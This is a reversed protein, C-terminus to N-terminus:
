DFNLKYANFTQIHTRNLDNDNKNVLFYYITKVKNKSKKVTSLKYDFLRIIQRLITVLKQETVQQLYIKAKCPLYYTILRNRVSNNFKDVAKNNVLDNICFMSSDNLSKLKFCLLFDELLVRDDIYKAFIQNIKM